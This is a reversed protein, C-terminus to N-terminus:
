TSRARSGQRARGALDAPSLAAYSPGDLRESAEGVGILVPTRESVTM